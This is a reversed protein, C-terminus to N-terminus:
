KKSAEGTIKMLKEHLQKKASSKQTMAQWEKDMSEM